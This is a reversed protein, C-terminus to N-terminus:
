EDMGGAEEMDEDSIADDADDADDAGDLSAKSITSKGRKHVPTNGVCVLWDAVSM